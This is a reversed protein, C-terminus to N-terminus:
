ASWRPYGWGNHLYRSVPVGSQKETASLCDDFQQVLETPLPFTDDGNGRKSRWHHSRPWCKRGASGSKGSANAANQADGRPTRHPGQATPGVPVQSAIFAALSQSPDREGQVELCADILVAYQTRSDITGYKGLYYDKALLTAVAHNSPKHRRYKPVRASM